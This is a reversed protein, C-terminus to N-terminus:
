EITSARIAPEPQLDIIEGRGGVDRARDPEGPRRDPAESRATEEVEYNCLTGRASDDRM